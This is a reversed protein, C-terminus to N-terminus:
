QGIRGEAFMTVVEPLIRHEVNLVKAALSEPTEGPAVTVIDQLLIRGRDYEEDVLHVTAGSVADGAAVVAEHVRMGYMGEGGYKPLLAPHVNIIRGRYAAVVSADLKKMYGALVVLDAAHARLVGLMATNFSADDDFRQRSLHLAPIGNARAFALAGSGSNNSIVAVIRAAAARATLSRHLAELNSGRGSAFVAINLVRPDRRRRESRRPCLVSCVPFAPLAEM